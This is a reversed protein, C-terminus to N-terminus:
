ATDKLHLGLSVPAPACLCPPRPPFALMQLWTNSVLFTQKRDLGASVGDEPEKWFYISFLFSLFGVICGFLFAFHLKPFHGGLHRRVLTM